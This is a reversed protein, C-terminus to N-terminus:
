RWSEIKPARSENTESFFSFVEMMKRTNHRYDELEKEAKLLSEKLKSITNGNRTYQRVAYLFAKSGSGVIGQGIIFNLVEVVDENEEDDLHEIVITKFSKSM